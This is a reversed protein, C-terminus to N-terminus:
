GPKIENVPFSFHLIKVGHLFLVPNIGGYYRLNKISNFFHILPM